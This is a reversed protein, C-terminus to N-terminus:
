LHADATPLWPSDLSLIYVKTFETLAGVDMVNFTADTDLTAGVDGILPVADM